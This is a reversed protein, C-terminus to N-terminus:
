RAEKPLTVSILDEKTSYKRVTNIHFILFQRFSASGQSEYEDIENLKEAVIERSSILQKRVELKEELAIWLEDLLQQEKESFKEQFLYQAPHM